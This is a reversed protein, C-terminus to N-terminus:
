RQLGKICLESEVEQKFIRLSVSTEGAEEQLLRQETSALDQAYKTCALLIEPVPSEACRDDTERYLLSAENELAFILVFYNRNHGRMHSLTAAVWIKAVVKQCSKGQVM